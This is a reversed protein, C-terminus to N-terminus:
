PIFTKTKKKIEITHMYIIYSHQITKLYVHLIKNIYNKSHNTKNNINKRIYISFFTSRSTYATIYYTCM